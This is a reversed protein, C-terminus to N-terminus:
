CSLSVRFTTSSNQQCNKHIHLLLQNCKLPSEIVIHYQLKKDPIKGNRSLSLKLFKSNMEMVVLSCHKPTPLQMPPHNSDGLAEVTKEYHRDSCHKQTIAVFQM